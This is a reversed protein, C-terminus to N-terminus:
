IAEDVPDTGVDPADPAHDAEDVNASASAGKKSRGFAM